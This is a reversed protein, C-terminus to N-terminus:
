DEGEVEAEAPRRDSQRRSNKPPSALMEEVRREVLSGKMKKADDLREKLDAVRAELERMEQERRENQKEFAQVALTYLRAKTAQKTTDDVASRYQDVADRMEFQLKREKLLMSGREPDERMTEMLRKIEPGMRKMRRAYQEDNQDKVRQLKVFMQPMNDEMFKEIQRQDQESLEEWRVQKQGRDRAGPRGARRGARRRETRPGSKDAGSEAQAKGENSQKTAQGFTAGNSALSMGIVCVWRYRKSKM